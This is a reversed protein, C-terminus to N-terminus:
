NDTDTAHLEDERAEAAARTTHSRGAPDGVVEYRPVTTGWNTGPVHVTKIAM